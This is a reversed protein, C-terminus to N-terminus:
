LVLRWPVSDRNKLADLSEYLYLRQEEKSVYKPADWHSIDTYFLGNVTTSQWHDIADVVALEEFSGDLVVTDRDASKFLIYANQNGSTQITVTERYIGEHVIVTDGAKVVDAAQQITRFPRGHNGPNNDNGDLAVHYNKNGTPFNEARTQIVGSLPSDTVGDPDYYSLRIEYETAPDLFFISGAYRDNIIKSPKHAPIWEPSGVSRYELSANNDGNIDGSYSSIIGISNFTAYLSLGLAKTSDQAFAFASICVVALVTFVTVM